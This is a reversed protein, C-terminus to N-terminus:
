PTCKGSGPKTADFPIPCKLPLKCDADRQCSFACAHDSPGFGNPATTVFLQCVYGDAVRCDADVKCTKYCGPLEGGIAVCTAGPPCVQVDNCPEMFCYGGPYNDGAATNCASRPDTGCDVTSVCATGIKNSASPACKGTGGNGWATDCSLGADCMKTPGCASGVGQMPTVNDPPCDFLLELTDIELAGNDSENEITAKDMAALAKTINALSADIDTNVTATGGVRHCTPARRAVAPGANQWDAKLSDNDMKSAALNGFHADIGVQRFVADMRIVEKPADPLFFDFLDPCALGVANAAYVAKMQDKTTIAADLTTVADDVAKSAALSTLDPCATKTRAWVQKLIANITAARDWAPMRAPQEGFTTTVLGEGAREVDRLNAPVIHDRACTVLASSDGGADAGSMSLDAGTTMPTGCNMGLAATLLVVPASFRPLMKIM